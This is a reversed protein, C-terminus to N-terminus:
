ALWIPRGEAGALWIFALALAIACLVLWLWDWASLYRLLRM